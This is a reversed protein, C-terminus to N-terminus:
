WLTLVQQSGAATGDLVVQDMGAERGVIDGDVMSDDGDIASVERAAEDEGGRVTHGVDTGGDQLCIEDGDLVTKSCGPVELDLVKSDVTEGRNAM